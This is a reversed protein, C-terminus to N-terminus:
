EPLMGLSISTNEAYKFCISQNDVFLEHKTHADDHWHLFNTRTLPRSSCHFSLICRLACTYASKLIYIGFIHKRGHATRQGPLYTPLGHYRLRILFRGIIEWCLTDSASTLVYKTDLSWFWSLQISAPADQDTNPAHDRSQPLWCAWTGHTVEKKCMLGFYVIGHNKFFRWTDKRKKKVRQKAKPVVYKQDINQSLIPDGVECICTLFKNKIYEHIPMQSIYTNM